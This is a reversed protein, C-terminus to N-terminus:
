RVFTTEENRDRQINRLYEQVTEIAERRLLPKFIDRIEEINQLIIDTSTTYYQLMVFTHNTPEHLFDSAPIRKWAVEKSSSSSSSSNVVPAPLAHFYDEIKKGVGPLIGVTM